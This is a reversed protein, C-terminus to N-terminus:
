VFDLFLFLSLLFIFLLISFSSFALLRLFFFSPYADIVNHVLRVECGIFSAVCVDEGLEPLSRSIGKTIDIHDFIFHIISLLILFFISVNLFTPRTLLFGGMNITSVNLYRSSALVSYLLDVVEEHLSYFSSHPPPYFCLFLTNVEQVGWIQQVPPVMGFQVSHLPLDGSKFEVKWRSFHPISSYSRHSLSLSPHALFIFPHLASRTYPQDGEM